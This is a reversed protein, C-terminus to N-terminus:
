IDKDQQQNLIVEFALGYSRSTKPILVSEFYLKFCIVSFGSFFMQKLKCIKNLLFNYISYRKCGGSANEPQLYVLFVNAALAEGRV